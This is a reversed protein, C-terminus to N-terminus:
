IYAYLVTEEGHITYHGLRFKYNPNLTKLLIPIRYFDDNIHYLSIALKPQFKKITSVAGQLANYESGEIDMKIFDVKEIIKDSVLTDIKRLPINSNLAVSFGPAYESSELPDADIDVNSVGYPLLKLNLKPNQNINHQIVEQHVKLPDLIFVKGASGVTDAFVIGTEGLFGGCDILYDNKEPMIKQTKSHYFYQKRFWWRLSVTDIKLDSKELKFNFHKLEGLFGTVNLKSSSFNGRELFNRYGENYNELNVPLKVSLHGGIKFAILHLFLLKSDHDELTNLANFLEKYRYMFWIFNEVSKQADFIKSRDNGDLGFRQADWNDIFNNLKISRISQGLVIFLFQEENAPITDFMLEMESLKTTAADLPYETM